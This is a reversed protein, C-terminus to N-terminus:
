RNNKNHGQSARNTRPSGRRRWEKDKDAMNMNREAFTRFLYTMRHCLDPFIDFKDLVLFFEGFATLKESKISVKAM